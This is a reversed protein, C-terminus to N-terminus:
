ETDGEPLPNILKHCICCKSKGKFKHEAEGQPEVLSGLNKLHSNAWIQAALASNAKTM